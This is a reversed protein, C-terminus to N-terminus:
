WVREALRHRQDLEKAMRGMTLSPIDRTSIVGLVRERDVVVLHRFAGEDMRRVAEEVPEEAGIFEPEVTMVDRLKTTTLDLGVAAVRVLLDRETFIGLLREDDIILISGCGNEAMCKTANAVTEDPGASVLDPGARRRHLISRVPRGPMITEGQYPHETTDLGAEWVPLM